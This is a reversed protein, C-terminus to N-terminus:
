RRYLRTSLRDLEETEDSSEGLRIFTKEAREYIRRMLLVQSKREELDGRISVYQTPGCSVEPWTRQLPTGM